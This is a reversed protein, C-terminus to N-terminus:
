SRPLNPCKGPLKLKFYNHLMNHGWFYIYHSNFKEARKYFMLKLTGQARNAMSYLVADIFRPWEDQLSPIGTNQQRHYDDFEGLRDYIAEYTDCFMKWVTPDNMYTFVMGMEKAASLQDDAPKGEFSNAVDIAQKGGFMAGKMGNPRAKFITLRDLHENSGLERLMIHFFTLTVPKGRYDTSPWRKDNFVYKLSDDCKLTRARSTPAPNQNVIEGEALWHTFFDGVLQGEFVHETQYMSRQVGQPTYETDFDQKPGVNWIGCHSSTNGWWRSIPDWKGKQIGAWPANPDEPFQPYTGPTRAYTKKGCMTVEKEGRGATGWVRKELSNESYYTTNGDFAEEDHTFSADSARKNLPIVNGRTARRWDGNTPSTSCCDCSDYSLIDSYGYKYDMSVCGCCPQEEELEEIETCSGDNKGGLKGETADGLQGYVQKSLLEEPSPPQFKQAGYKFAGEFSPVYDGRTQLDNEETNEASATLNYVDDDFDRKGSSKLVNNYYCISGSKPSQNDSGIESSDSDKWGTRSKLQESKAEQFVTTAITFDSCSKNSHNEDPHYSFQAFTNYMLAMDAVATSDLTKKKTQGLVELDVNVGFRVFTGVALTGGNSDSMWINNDKGVSVDNPMFSGSEPKKDEPYNMPWFATVNSFDQTVRTELQGIFNTASDHFNTNKTGNLSALEYSVDLYPSFSVFSNSGASITAGKLDFSRKAGHSPNGKDAKSFDVEGFGRIGYTLDSKGAAKVFGNAQNITLEGGPYYAGVMSFGIYMQADIEGTVYAAFSEGYDEGEIKCEKAKQYWVLESLDQKVPIANTNEYQFHTNSTGYNSRWDSNSSSYFRKVLSRAEKSGDDEDIGPSDVIKDWYGQVNSYDLRVSTHNTTDRRSLDMNYDFKFDYVKSTPNRKKIKASVVQNQSPELSVARAFTDPACNDPMEVITGEVGREMVQFCGNLDDSLCVVRATHIQDKPAGTVNSPCDLFHFPEPENDRRRLRSVAHSEGALLLFGFGGGNPALSGASGFTSIGYVPKTTNQPRIESPFIHAYDVLNYGSDSSGLADSDSVARLASLTNDDLDIAWIMLGSLGMKNAYDIKMQFTTADDFAVWSDKNYVMYRVGAEKDLYATGRTDKRIQSIERYSLIGETDTCPGKAGPDSFECGPKWCSADKLKFTRGYFGLGLVISSPEVDVRWFLDLAEDIGTLNTHALVHNGIPNDGDWVGHLDYAMLNIWDVNDAMAKLDFQRLYWYSTPSTFTVLYDRGSVSIAAKLEKLLKAYNAGDADSGGRDDAGPYEWDFDVGDYGYESLFGLLNDIFTKRNAESSVMTPFVSQWAGPDNFTWGGLAIMIKLKPNRQKLDGVIKYLDPSVGDMNTIKYEQTIYGFSIILHSLMQVPIEGPEMTGCAHDMNWAEWYGIVREQVNSTKVSPKPQECHSQCGKDKEDKQECFESTTGCFGFESCCVNLPCGQGAVKAYKGCDATADCNHMCGDGCYTPGFGCHGSSGCCAGNICPKSKSCTYPDNASSSVAIADATLSKAYTSTILSLLFPLCLLLLLFPRPGRKLSVM